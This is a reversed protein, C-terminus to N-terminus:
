KKIMPAINDWAKALQVLKATAIEGLGSQELKMLKNTKCYTVLQAEAINSKHCLYLLNNLEESVNPRPAFDGAPPEPEVVPEEPESQAAPADSPTSAPEPQTTVTRTVPTTQEKVMVRKPSGDAPGFNPKKASTAPEGVEIVTTMEHDTYLGGLMTPFSSRLADAEACKVIMGAKDKQWRGFGQDFTSLNLRRETTHRRAKFYVIAWGGLLADGPYLFDSTRDVIADNEDKVIVGSKMGDYEPNVEARKLFAQHATILSFQAGDRGDYGQLFCDGEFPNLKRARCLMMFKMCDRDDPLVGSKTPIAVFDKIIKVSLKIKTDAGFPIFEVEGRQQQIQAVAQENSM